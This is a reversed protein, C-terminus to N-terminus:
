RKKQCLRWSMASVMKNLREKRHWLIIIDCFIQIKSKHKNIVKLIIVFGAFCRCIKMFLKEAEVGHFLITERCKLLNMISVVFLVFGTKSRM